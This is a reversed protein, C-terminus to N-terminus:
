PLPNSGGSRKPKRAKAFFNIMGIDGRPSGYLGRRFEEEWWLLSQHPTQVMLDQLLKFNKIVVKSVLIRGRFQAPICDPEDDEDTMDIPLKYYWLKITENALPYVGIKQAEETVGVTTVHDGTEDHDIDLADLEEWRKCVYINTWDSDRAKFLKKHYTAPPDYLWTATTVTFDVPSLLRLYPLDFDTAIENVADNLWNAFYPELSPDRIVVMLEEKLRALNM